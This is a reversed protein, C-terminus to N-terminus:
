ALLRDNGATSSEHLADVMLWLSALHPNTATAHATPAAPWPQPEASRPSDVPPPSDASPEPLTTILWTYPPPPLLPELYLFSKMSSKLRLAEGALRAPHDTWYADAEPEFQLM